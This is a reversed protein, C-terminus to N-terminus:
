QVLCRRLHSSNDTSGLRRGLAQRFPIFGLHATLGIEGFGEKMGSVNAGSSPGITEGLGGVDKKMVAPAEVAGPVDGAHEGAEPALDAAKSAKGALSNAKDNEARPVHHLLVDDCIVYM